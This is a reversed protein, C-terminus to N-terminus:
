DVFVFEEVVIWVVEGFVECYDVLEFGGVGVVM